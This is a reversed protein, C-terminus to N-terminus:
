TNHKNAWWDRRTLRDIHRIKSAHFTEKREIIFLAVSGDTCSLLLGPAAHGKNQVSAVGILHEHNGHLYKDVYQM